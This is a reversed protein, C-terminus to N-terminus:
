RLFKMLQLEGTGEVLEKANTRMEAFTVFSLCYIDCKQVGSTLVMLIDLYLHLIIIPVLM